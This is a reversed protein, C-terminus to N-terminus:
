GPRVLDRDGKTGAPFTDIDVMPNLCANFGREGHSHAPQNSGPAEAVARHHTSKALTKVFGIRGACSKHGGDVFGVGKVRRDYRPTEAPRLHDFEAFEEAFAIAGVAFPPRLPQPPNPAVSFPLFHAQGDVFPRVAFSQCSM